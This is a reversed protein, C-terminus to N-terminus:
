HLEGTPGFMSKLHFYCPALIFRKGESPELARQQKSIEDDLRRLAHERGESYILPMWVGFIGLLSYVLDEERKAERKAAWSKREAISFETLPHGQLAKPAIGTIEHIVTQLSLKDGLREGNIAFFEVIRPAILEQLTWGRTFWRSQRLASEEYSVTRNRGEIKVPVDALYVYCRSANEYWRFMSNIAETVEPESRKNICCTDVWFYRLGDAKARKECFEIKHYGPKTESKGAELDEFAVEKSNDLDWTHSLIAYAPVRNNDFESLILSGSASRSLLRIM